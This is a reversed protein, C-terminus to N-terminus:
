ITTSMTQRYRDGSAEPMRPQEAASIGSTGFAHPNPPRSQETNRPKIYEIRTTRFRSYIWFGPWISLTSLFALIVPLGIMIVLSSGLAKFGHIYEEGSKVVDAGFFASLGCVLSLPVFLGAYGIFFIKFLSAARIRKITISESNIMNNGFTRLPIVAQKQCPKQVRLLIPLLWALHGSPVPIQQVPM